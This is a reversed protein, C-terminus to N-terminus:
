VARYFVYLFLDSVKRTLLGYDAVGRCVYTSYVGSIEFGRYRLCESLRVSIANEMGLVNMLVGRDGSEFWKM